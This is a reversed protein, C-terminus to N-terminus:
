YTKDMGAYAIKLEAQEREYAARRPDFDSMGNLLRQLKAIRSEVKSWMPEGDNNPQTRYPNFGEAGDNFMRDYDQETM